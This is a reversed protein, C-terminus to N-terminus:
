YGLSPSTPQPTESNPTKSPIISNPTQDAPPLFITRAPTPLDLGATSKEADEAMKNTLTANTTTLQREQRQLNQLRRYNQGWLEQSYVTLGYVILTTAVLLFTTVSSYRQLTYFRMLWIPVAVSNPMMPLNLFSSKLSQSQAVPKKGLEQASTPRALDKTAFVSLNKSNKSSRQQRRSPVPKIESALAAARQTASMLRTPRRKGLPPTSSRRLWTSIISVASKRAVAM